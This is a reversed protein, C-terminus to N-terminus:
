ARPWRLAFRTTMPAQAGDTDLRAGLQEAIRQVLRLGLGLGGSEAPRVRAATPRRGDDSVSVGVSAADRWVEVLVQTGPPTHRLANEILNRLALELLMPQVTVVVPEDPQQLSIEQWSELAAPAHSAVLRTALEGLAVPVGDEAGQNRQARALDLLQQLIRGARLSEQELQELRQPSPDHQAARAQLTLAALPTRLEHAVDSAFERERQARAQLSDVLANIATVTSAFERFRRETSLREGAFGDLAAVERSLSDLPRLGRRVGWGLLLLVVPLVLLAPEAVHMAIDTGLEFRQRRDILVLVRRQEAGEGTQVSFARWATPLHPANLEVSFFGVAPLAALDLKDALGHTDSVLRGGEWALVALDQLFEHELDAGAQPLPRSEGIPSAVLWLRAVAVMQGDSFKRAERFATTWAQAVVALWLILLMGLTWRLLYHRLLRPAKM